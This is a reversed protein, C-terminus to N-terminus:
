KLYIERVSIERVSCPSFELMGFLAPRVAYRNGYHDLTGRASVYIGDKSYYATVEKGVLDNLQGVLDRATREQM